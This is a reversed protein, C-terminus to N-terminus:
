LLIEADREHDKSLLLYNQCFDRLIRICVCVYVCVCVSADM